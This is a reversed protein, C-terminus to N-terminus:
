VSIIEDVLSDRAHSYIGGDSEKEGEARGGSSKTPPAQQDQWGQSRRNGWMERSM